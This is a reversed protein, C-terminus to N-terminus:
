DEVLRRASEIEVDRGECEIVCGEFGEAGVGQEQHVARRSAAYERRYERRVRVRINLKDLGLEVAVPVGDQGESITPERLWKM